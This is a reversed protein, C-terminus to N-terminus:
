FYLPGYYVIADVTVKTTNICVMNYFSFFVVMHMTCLDITRNRVHFKVKETTHEKDKIITHLIYKFFWVPKLKSRFSYFILHLNSKARDKLIM